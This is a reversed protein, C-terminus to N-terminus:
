ASRNFTIASGDGQVARGSAGYGSGMARAASVEHAIAKVLGESVVRAAEVARAHAALIAEFRRTADILAMRDSPPSASLVSPDAKVQASERRYLNAMDQTQSLSAVVDQPRREAFARTEAELRATLSQTLGLLQRALSPNAM